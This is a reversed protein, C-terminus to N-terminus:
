YAKKYDDAKKLWISLTNCPVDFDKAIQIKTKLRKEMELFAKYKTKTAM